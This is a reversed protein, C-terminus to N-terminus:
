KRACWTAGTQHVDKGNTGVVHVRHHERYYLHRADGLIPEGPVVIPQIVSLSFVIRIRAVPTSYM